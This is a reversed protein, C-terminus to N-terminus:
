TEKLFVVNQQINGEILVCSTNQETQVLCGFELFLSRLIKELFLFCINGTVTRIIEGAPAVLWVSM